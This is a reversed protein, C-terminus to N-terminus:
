PASPDSILQQYWAAYSNSSAIYVPEDWTVGIGGSTLLLVIVTIVGIAAAIKNSSGTASRM